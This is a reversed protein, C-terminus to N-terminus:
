SSDFVRLKAEESNGSAETFVDLDLLSSLELTEQNFLNRKKKLDARNAMGFDILYMAGKDNVLINEERIDNHLIGHGHVAKLAGLAILKQQKTIKHHNLTTGVITMGMIFSLGGGYYGYCMLKPIYKGQIDALDKYIEVEKVMKNLFNARKYLDISKLAIMEGRFKCRLTKGSQGTGLIGKFEFDTFYFNQLMNIRQKKANSNTRYFEALTRGNIGGLIHVGKIEIALILEHKNNQDYYCTFDPDGNGDAPLMSFDYDPGTLLNLVMCINVNVANRIVEENVVKFGMVFQPKEFRPQQDFRYENVENFFEEWLVVRIPPDGVANTSSTSSTGRLSYVVLPPICSLAEEL